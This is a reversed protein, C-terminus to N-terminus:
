KHYEEGRLITMARYVQESLVTLAIDHQFTMKSLSLILDARSKLSVSLGYAGGILFVVNRADLEINSLKKAFEISDLKRGEESLAVIFDKAEVKELLRKSELEITAEPPLHKGQKVSVIKFQAYYGIRKSYHAILSAVQEDPKGVIIIKLKM